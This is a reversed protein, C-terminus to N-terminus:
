SSKRRQGLLADRFSGEIGFRKKIARIAATRYTMWAIEIEERRNWYGPHVMDLVPGAFRRLDARSALTKESVCLFTNQRCYVIIEERNWIQPRICDLMKYGCKEFRKEWYSPWQENVHHTGEQGPIAASFLVYDSLSTLSAVFDDAFEADLHEAVELSVALDFRGLEPFPQTLDHAIFTEKAIQLRARDVYDGDLGVIRSVGADAFARLWIGEGCGVDVVSKAPVLELVLPCLKEASVRTLNEITSFFKKTYENTPATDKM